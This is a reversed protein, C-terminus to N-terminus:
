MRHQRDTQRDRDSDRDPYVGIKGEISTHIPSLLSTRRYDIIRQYQENGAYWDMDDTSALMHDGSDAIREM